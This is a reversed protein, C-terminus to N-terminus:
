SDITQRQSHTRGQINQPPKSRSQGSLHQSMRPSIRPQPDGQRRSFTQPPTFTATPRDRYSQYSMLRPQPYWNYRPPQYTYSSRVWNQEYPQSLRPPKYRPMTRSGPSEKRQTSTQPLPDSNATPPELKDLRESIQRIATELEETKDSNREIVGSEFATDVEQIRRVYPRPKGIVQEILEERTAALLAEEFTKPDQSMVNRKIKDNIGNLFQVRLREDVEKKQCKEVVAREQDSTSAVEILTEAALSQLRVAYTQVDEGWQQACAHFHQLRITYPIKVFRKLM